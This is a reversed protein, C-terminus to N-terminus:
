LLRSHRRPTISFRFSRTENQGIEVEGRQGDAIVVRPSSVLVEGGDRQEFIQMEVLIQGDDLPSFKPVITFRLGAVSLPMLTGEDVVFQTKWASVDVGTSGPIATKREISLDVLVQDAFSSTAVLLAGGAVVAALVGLLPRLPVTLRLVPGNPEAARLDAVAVGFV